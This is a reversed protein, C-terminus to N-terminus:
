GKHERAKLEDLLATTVKSLGRAKAEKEARGRIFPRVFFPAREIRAAAEPEWEMARLIARRAM